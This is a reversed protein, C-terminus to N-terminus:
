NALPRCGSDKYFNLGSDDDVFFNKARFFCDGSCCQIFRNKQVKFGGVGLGLGLGWGRGLSVRGWWERDTLRDTRPTPPTTAGGGSGFRGGGGVVLRHVSSSFLPCHPPPPTPTTLLDLGAGNFIVTQILFVSYTAIVCLTPNKETDWFQKM